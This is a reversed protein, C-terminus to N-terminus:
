VPKAVALWMVVVIAALLLPLAVPTFRRHYLDLLRQEGSEYPVEPRRLTFIGPLARHSFWLDAIEIPLVVFVVVALKLRLWHIEMAGSGYMHIMVLGSALMTAFGLHELWLIRLFGQYLYHTVPNLEGMERRAQMLVLWAGGSPGLWVVLAGLHVVKVIPFWDAADVVISRGGRPRLPKPSM